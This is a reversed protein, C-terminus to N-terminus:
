ETKACKESAQNQKLPYRNDLGWFFTGTYLLTMVIFAITLIMFVFTNDMRKQDTLLAPIGM